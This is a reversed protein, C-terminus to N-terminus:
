CLSFSPGNLWKIRNFHCLLSKHEIIPHSPRVLVPDWSTTYLRAFLLPSPSHLYLQFSIYVDQFALFDPAPAPLTVAATAVTLVQMHQVKSYRSVVHRRAHFGRFSENAAPSQRFM